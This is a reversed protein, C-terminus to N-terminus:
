YEEVVLPESSTFSQALATSEWWRAFSGSAWWIALTMAWALYADVAYHWGLHISGIFVLVAHTAAVTRVFTSKNWVALVLILVSANHISPMASIGRLVSEGSFGAWLMDQAPVAWIPLVENASRLYAMLGAYPDPTLGLRGYFCPGASSLLVAM